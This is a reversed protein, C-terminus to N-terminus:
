QATGSFPLAENSFIWASGVAAFNHFQSKPGFRSSGDRRGTINLMYKDEWNYNIRGFIANYKYTSSISSTANISSASLIDEMVLDNSFGSASIQSGLSAKKSITAGLLVELKGKSINQIYTLQPEISWSSVENNTFYTMRQRYPLLEPPVSQLLGKYIINSNLKNYGFVSKFELGPMIQYGLNMNSTLNNTKNLFSDFTYGIPNGIFTTNGSADPAWNISGDPNYLAPALPALQMANNTLDVMPLQNNDLMYSGSFGLKFRQNTSLNNFNFLLSTKNDSFNGPFVNTERHHGSSVLFTTRDSGGSVSANLDQYAATGGILENQWDTYRSTDWNGNLDSDVYPGKDPAAIGDNHLAERRMELYQESNMLNLKRPVKAWGSQLNLNVRTDGAKGKKTTILIAGNAARSGYIATADADKLIDISEIDSPNIFNLPNGFSNDGSKGQVSAINGLPLLQSIFPIGDIVYLPDNGNNISNKGQIRVKVGTGAFGTAQEIFLGPVRGQLALLVNNVPQKEIVDAKITTVNGTSLRQTTTGYAIVQIEDLKSLSPELIISGMNASARVEKPLYGIFSVVLVAGEEVGRLFFRGDKDASVAKGTAKVKVSAGPLPKGNEDLIKGGVDINNFRDLIKEFFSPKEKEKIVVTKDEITYTLDTGKVVQDMVKDLETDKFKVNIRQSTKFSTNKILVDYGTQKHIEWFVRELTVNNEMLTVKQGFTAASVQM